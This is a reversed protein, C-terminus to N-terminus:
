PAAADTKGDLLRLIEGYVFAYDALSEPWLKSAGSSPMIWASASPMCLEILGVTTM